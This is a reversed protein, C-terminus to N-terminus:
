FDSSEFKYKDFIKKLYLTLESEVLPKNLIFLDSIILNEDLIFFIAREMNKQNVLIEGQYCLINNINLDYEQNYNTFDRYGEVPVLAILENHFPNNKNSNLFRFIDEDCVNCVSKPYFLIMRKGYKVLNIINNSDTQNLILSETLQMNCNDYNTFTNYEWYENNFNSERKEKLLKNIEIEEKYKIIIILNLALMIVTAIFYLNNNKM